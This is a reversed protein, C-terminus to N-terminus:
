FSWVAPLPAGRFATLFRILAQRLPALDPALFRVTLVGGSASAGAAVGDLHALRARAALLREEADPAAEVLTALARHEGGHRTTGGVAASLDGALRLAESHVVRADRRIRWQDSLAGGRFREGMGARGFMLVELALLRADGALDADLRRALCGGALLVTERPLWDISAGAGATIRTEIRAVGRDGDHVREAAQTTVTLRAGPGAGIRREFRDGGTVGGATNILVAEPRASCTDPLLAKACGTQRLRDVRLAGESLSVIVEARSQAREAARLSQLVPGPVDM